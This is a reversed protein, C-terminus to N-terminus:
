TQHNPHYGFVVETVWRSRHQSRVAEGKVKIAEWGSLM